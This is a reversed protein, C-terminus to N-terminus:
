AKPVVEYRYRTDGSIGSDAKNAYVEAEAETPFHKDAKKDHSMPAHGLKYQSYRRVTFKDKIAPATLTSPM